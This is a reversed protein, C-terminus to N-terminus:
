GILRELVLLWIPLTFIYLLSSVLIVSSIIELGKKDDYALIYANIGTPGTSLIFLATTMDVPLQFIYNTSLLVLSPLLLLKAAIIFLAKKQSQLKFQALSAGLVLLACPIAAEGIMTLSDLLVTPINISLKNLSLGIILSLVIPNRLTKTLAAVINKIPNQNDKSPSNGSFADAIYYLSFGILSHFAIIPLAYALGSEGMVQIVVPIGILVTNSYAASFSLQAKLNNKWFVIVFIAFLSIYPLYYSLLLKWSADTPLGNKYMGTLLLAPILVKSTLDGTGDIWSKGIINFKALAWGTTSLLILPTLLILTPIM